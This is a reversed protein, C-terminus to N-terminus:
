ESARYMYEWCYTDITRTSIIGYGVAPARPHDLPCGRELHTAFQQGRSNKFMFWGRAPNDQSPIYGTICVAHGDVPTRDYLADQSPYLVKGCRIAHVGDWGNLLSGRVIMVSAVVPLGVALQARFIESVTQSGIDDDWPKEKGLGDPNAWVNHEFVAKRSAADQLAATETEADLDVTYDSPLLPHSRYPILARRCLGEEQLVQRAQDLFTAGTEKLYDLVEQELGLEPLFQELRMRQYLFEESLPVISQTGSQRAHYLEEAAVVAFATCTGRRGQSRPTWDALYPAALDIVARAPAATVETM